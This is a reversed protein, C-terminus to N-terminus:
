PQKVCVANDLLRNTRSEEKAIQDFVDDNPSKDYEKEEKPTLAIFKMDYGTPCEIGVHFANDKSYKQHPSLFRPSAALRLSYRKNCVWGAFFMVGALALSGLAIKWKVKSCSGQRFFPV